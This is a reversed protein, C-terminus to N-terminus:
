RWARGACSHNQRLARPPRDRLDAHHRHRRLDARHRLAPLRHCLLRPPFVQHRSRPRPRTAQPLRGSRLHLHFLNRARHLGGAARGRRHAPVHRGRRLRHARLVRGPSPQRRAAHRALAAPGGARHRLHARPLLHHLRQDRRHRLLRHGPAPFAALPQGLPGAHNRLRRGLGAPPASIGFPLSADILMVAVGTLTLIVEPLIRYIDPVPNV